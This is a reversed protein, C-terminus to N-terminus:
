GLPPHYSCYTQEVLLLGFGSSVSFPGLTFHPVGAELQFKSLIGVAGLASFEVVCLLLLLLYQSLFNGFARLLESSVISENKLVWTWLPQFDSETEDKLSLRMKAFYTLDIHTLFTFILHTLITLNTLTFHWILIPLFINLSIHTILCKQHNEFM